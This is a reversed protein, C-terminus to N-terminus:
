SFSIIGLTIVHVKLYFFNKGLYHGCPSWSVQRITRKHGDTLVVKNSWKGLLDKAWIRICKEEGCSALAEGKPHWSLNWVRGFDKKVTQSLELRSM